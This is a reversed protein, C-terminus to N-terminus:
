SVSIEANKATVIRLGQSVSQLNLGLVTSSSNMPQSPMETSGSVMGMLRHGLIIESRSLDITELQTPNKPNKPQKKAM